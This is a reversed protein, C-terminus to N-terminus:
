ELNGFSFATDAHGVELVELGRLLIGVGHEDEWTCGFEIGFYPIGDKEEGSMFVAVVGSMKIIENSNSIEPLFGSVDEPAYAEIIQDRESLYYKALIRIVLDRLKSQNNTIWTIHNEVNKPDLDIDIVLHVHGDSPEPSSVAGYKGNRIQFGQFSSLQINTIHFYEDSFFEPYNPPNYNYM